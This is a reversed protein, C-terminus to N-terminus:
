SFLIFLSNEKKATAPSITVVIGDVSPIGRHQNSKNIEVRSSEIVIHKNQKCNIIQKNHSRFTKM